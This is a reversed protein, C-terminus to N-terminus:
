YRGVGGFALAWADIGGQISATRTLGRQRLLSAAQLSRVGHHCLIYLIRTKALDRLTDEQNLLQALPCPFSGPVSALDREWDERVDVIVYPHEEDRVQQPTVQLPFPTIEPTM